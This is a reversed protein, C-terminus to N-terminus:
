IFIYFLIFILIIIIFIIYKYPQSEEKRNYYKEYEEDTWEKKNLNKNVKNHMENIWLILNNRNLSAKQISNNNLKMIKMDKKYLESCTKCPLIHQLSLLFNIIANKEIKSPNEPYSYAISHLFIWAHSGWIKPNM